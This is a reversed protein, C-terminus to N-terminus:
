WMTITGCTTIWFFLHPSLRRMNVARGPATFFIHESPVPVCQYWDSIRSLKENRKNEWWLASGWRTPNKVRLSFQIHCYSDFYQWMQSQRFVCPLIEWWGRCWTNVCLTNLQLPSIWTVSEICKVPAFNSYNKKVLWSPAFSILNSLWSPRSM